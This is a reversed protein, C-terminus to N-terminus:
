SIVSAQHRFGGAGPREATEAEAVAAGVQGATAGEAKAAAM